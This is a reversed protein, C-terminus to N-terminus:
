SSKMCRYTKNLWSSSSSSTASFPIPKSDAQQHTQRETQPPTVSLRLPFHNQPESKALLCSIGWVFSLQGSASQRCCECSLFVHPCRLGYACKTDYYVRQGVPLVQLCVCLKKEALMWAHTEQWEPDRVSLLMQIMILWQCFDWIYLVRRHSVNDLYLYM